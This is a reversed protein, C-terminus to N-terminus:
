VHLTQFNKVKVSIYWQVIAQLVDVANMLTHHVKPQKFNSRCFGKM